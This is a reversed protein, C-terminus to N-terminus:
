ARRMQAVIRLLATWKAKWRRVQARLQEASDSTTVRPRVPLPARRRYRRVPTAPAPPEAGIQVLRARGAERARRMARCEAEYSLGVTAFPHVVARRATPTPPQTASVPAPGPAMTPPTAAVRRRQLATDEHAIRAREAAPVHGVALDSDENRLDSVLVRRQLGVQLKRVREYITGSWGGRKVGPRYALWEDARAGGCDAGAAHLSQLDVSIGQCKNQTTAM